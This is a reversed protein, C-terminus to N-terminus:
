DITEEFYSAPFKFDSIDQDIQRFAVSDYKQSFELFNEFTSISKSFKQPYNKLMHKKEEIEILNSRM